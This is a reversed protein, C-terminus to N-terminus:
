YIHATQFCVWIILIFLLRKETINVKSPTAKNEGKTHALKFDFGQLRLTITILWYTSTCSIQSDTFAPIPFWPVSHPSHLFHSHSHPFPTPFAPFRPPFAPFAPFAPFSTPIRLIMTPFVLFWLPFAPFRPPFTLFWFAFTPFLTSISFVFYFNM